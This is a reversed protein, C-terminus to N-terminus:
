IDLARGHASAIKFVERLIRIQGAFHRSRIDTPNLLVANGCTGLMKRCVALLGTTHGHVGDYIFPRKALDIGATKLDGYLFALRLGDHGGVILDVADVGIFIVM